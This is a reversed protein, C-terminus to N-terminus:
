GILCLISGVINIIPSILYVWILCCMLATQLFAFATIGATISILTQMIALGIEIKRNKLILLLISIILIAINSIIIGSFAIEINKDSVNYYLSIDVDGGSSAEQASTNGAFNMIVIILEFGLSSIINLICGVKYLNSHKRM